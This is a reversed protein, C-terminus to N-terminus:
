GGVIFAWSWGLGIVVLAGGGVMLRWRNLGLLVGQFCAGAYGLLLGCIFGSIHAAVDVDAEGMGFLGLLTLGGFLPVLWHPLMWRREPASFAAWIGVGTLIGLTGFIATSAGISTHTEPYYVFANLINGSIGSLLILFWGFAAGFFRCAFFAFGLGSVLNSVLHVIDAHLTLATIARWWEGGEVMAVADGKGVSVLQVTTQQWIFGAILVGACLLFSLWGLDFDHYKLPASRKRAGALAAFELLEVRVASAHKAAVCIVYHGEHLITWYAHGMALIALGSDGAKPFSDFVAVAELGEPVEFSEPLDEGGIVIAKLSVM